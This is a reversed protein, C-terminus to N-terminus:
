IQPLQGNKLLAVLEALQTSIKGLNEGISNDSNEANQNESPQVPEPAENEPNGGTQRQTELEEIEDYARQVDERFSRSKAKMLQYSAVDESAIAKEVSVASGDPLTKEVKVKYNSLLNKLAARVRADASNRTEINGDKFDRIIEAIRERATKTPAHDPNETDTFLQVIKEKTDDTLKEFKASLKRQREPSEARLQRLLNKDAM